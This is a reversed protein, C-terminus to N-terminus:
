WDAHEGRRGGEQVKSVEMKREFRGGGSKKAWGKAGKGGNADTGDGESHVTCWQVGHNQIRGGALRGAGRRDM